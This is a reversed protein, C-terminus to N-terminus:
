WTLQGSNMDYYVWFHTLYRHPRAIHRCQFAPSCHTTNDTNDNHTRVDRSARLWLALTKKTLPRNYLKSAKNFVLILSFLAIWPHKKGQLMWRASISTDVTIVSHCTLLALNLQNRARKVQVASAHVLVFGNNDVFHTFILIQLSHYWFFVQIDTDRRQPLQPLLWSCRKICGAVSYSIIQIQALGDYYSHHRNFQATCGGVPRRCVRM